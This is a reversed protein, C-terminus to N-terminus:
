TSIVANRSSSLPVGASPTSSVTVTVRVTYVGNDAYTHNLSFTKDVNLSLPQAGGGDGYDVTGTWTDAGPDTVLIDARVFVSKM